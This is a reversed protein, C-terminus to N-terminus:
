RGHELFNLKLTCSSLVRQWLSIGRTSGLRITLLQRQLNTKQCVLHTGKEYVSFYIPKSFFGRVTSTVDGTNYM